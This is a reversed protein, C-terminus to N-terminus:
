PRAGYPQPLQLSLDDPQEVLQVVRTFFPASARSRGIGLVAADKLEDEFLGCLATRRAHDLASLPDDM